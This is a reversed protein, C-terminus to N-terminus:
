RYYLCTAALTNSARSPDACVSLKGPSYKRPTSAASVKRPGNDICKKRGAKGAILTCNPTASDVACSVTLRGSNVM